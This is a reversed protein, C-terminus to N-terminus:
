CSDWLKLIQLLLLLMIRVEQEGKMKKSWGVLDM